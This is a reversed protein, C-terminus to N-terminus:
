SRIEQKRARYISTKNLLSGTEGLRFIIVIGKDEGYFERIIRVNKSDINKRLLAIEKKKAHYAYVVNPKLDWLNNNYADGKYQNLEIHERSFYLIHHQNSRIVIDAPIENKIWLAAESIYAKKYDSNILTDLSYGLFVVFILLKFLNNKKWLDEFIFPLYLCAFIVFQFSYRELSFNRSLTFLFLYLLIIFLHTNIIVFANRNPYLKTRSFSQYLLVIAYIPTLARFINLLCITIFVAIVAYASDEQASRTLLTSSIIESKESIADGFNVLFNSYTYIDSLLKLKNNINSSSFFIISLCAISLLAPLALFNFLTKLRSIGTKGEILLLSLPTLCAIVISEIRFLLAIATFVTWMLQQKLEAKKSYALLARASLLTFAWMGPDRMLSSRYDSMLPHASIIILAFFQARKSGGMDAVLRVFAYSMLFFCLSVIIHGSITLPIASIKHLSAFLISFFPWSYADVAASFGSDLYSQAVLLYFIGDKNILPDYLITTLSFCLNLLVILQVSLKDNSPNLANIM